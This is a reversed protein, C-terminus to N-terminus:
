NTTWITASKSQPKNFGTHKVLTNESLKWQASNGLQILLEACCADSTLKRLLASNLVLTVNPLTDLPICQAQVNCKLLVKGNALRKIKKKFKLKRLPNSQFPLTKISGQFLQKRRIGRLNFSGGLKECWLHAPSLLFFVSLRVWYQVMGLLIGRDGDGKETGVGLNRGKQQRKGVRGKELEGSLAALIQLARPWCDSVAVHAEATPQSSSYLQNHWTYLLTECIGDQSSCGVASSLLLLSTQIADPLCCLLM